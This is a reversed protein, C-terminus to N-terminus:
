EQLAFTFLGRHVRLGGKYHIFRRKRFGNMFFSVRSRTTGVMEALTQQTLGDSFRLSRESRPQRM